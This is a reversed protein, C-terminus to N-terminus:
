NKETVRSATSFSPSLIFCLRILAPMTNNLTSITALKRFIYRSPQNLVFFVRETLPNQFEQQRTQ